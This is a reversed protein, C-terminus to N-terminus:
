VARRARAPRLDRGRRVSRGQASGDGAAEGIQPALKAVLERAMETHKDITLRFGFGFEANDEFLSNNWSPGRGEKNFSWPTTPLNGGYISSCGTANAVIARDGFLQTMLKLYPTEGCGSCAGSYEFLPQLLQNAKVSALRVQRRDYEPLDLFFKYNERETERIPSSRYWTSAKLRTEKKNKAPCVEVCLGCGTCDEPAVQVTYAMGPEFESGKAKMWKFTAPLRATLKEDYAKIRITAHPCVIACKGCQICIEPDWAPFKSRSTANRGSRPGPRSRATWPSLASPCRTARPGSIITALSGQVFDPAESSVVPPRELSSTAAEPVKVEFLNALTQEVANFNKKVVEEGKSGYTKKISQKIAEIAEDRPLVGSIAFFCTQM